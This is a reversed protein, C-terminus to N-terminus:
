CQKLDAVFEPEKMALVILCKLTNKLFRTVTARDKLVRLEKQFDPINGHALDSRFAYLKTWVKKEQVDGFFDASVVPKAFRKQLLALKAAVQHTTSDLNEPGRPKHAVLSEIIAFYGIVLLESTEPIQKLLEFNRVAHHIQEYDKPLEAYLRSIERIEEIDEQGISMPVVANPSSISFHDVVRAPGFQMGISIGEQDNEAYFLQFGIDLSHHALNM